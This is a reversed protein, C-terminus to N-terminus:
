TGVVLYFAKWGFFFYVLVAVVLYPSTEQGDVLVNMNTISHTRKTRKLGGRSTAPEDRSLRHRIDRDM